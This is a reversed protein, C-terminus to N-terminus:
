RPRDEALKITSAFKPTQNPIKTPNPTFFINKPLNLPTSYSTLVDLNSNPASRSAYNCSRDFLSSQLNAWHHPPSKDHLHQHPHLSTPIDARSSFHLIPTTFSSQLPHQLWDPYLITPRTRLLPSSDRPESSPSSPIQVPSYDVAIRLESPQVGKGMISVQYGSEGKGPYPNSIVDNYLLFLALKYCRNSLNHNNRV